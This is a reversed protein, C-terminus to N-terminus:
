NGGVVIARKIGEVAPKLSKSPLSWDQLKLSQERTLIWLTEAATMRIQERILAENWSCCPICVKPFPHLLMGMVKTLTDSSTAPIVGLGRYIDLALHLKMIHSSKFHAKQTLSLLSRFSYTEALSSTLIM